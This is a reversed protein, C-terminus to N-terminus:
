NPVQLVAQATPDNFLDAALDAGALRHYYKTYRFVNYHMGKLM